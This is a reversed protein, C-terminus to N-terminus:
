YQSLGDSLINRLAVRMGQVVQYHFYEVCDYTSMMLLSDPSAECIATDMAAMRDAESPLVPNLAVELSIRITAQFRFPALKQGEGQLLTRVCCLQSARFVRMYEGGEADCVDSFLDSCLRDANRGLEGVFLTEVACRRGNGM